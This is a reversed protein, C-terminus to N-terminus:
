RFYELVNMLPPALVTLLLTPLLVLVGVILATQARRKAQAMLTQRLETLARQLQQGLVRRRQAEPTEAAQRLALVLLAYASGPINLEALFQVPSETAPCGLLVDALASQGAWTQAFIRVAEDVPRRGVAALLYVIQLLLLVDANVAKVFRADWGRATFWARPLLAGLLAVCIGVAWGQVGWWMALVAGVIAGLLVGMVTLLLPAGASVQRQRAVDAVGQSVQGARLLAGAVRPTPLAALVLSLWATLLLGPVVWYEVM